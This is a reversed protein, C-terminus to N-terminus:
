AANRVLDHAPAEEGENPVAEGRHGVADRLLAPPPRRRREGHVGPRRSGGGGRPAAGAAARRCPAGARPGPGWRQAGWAERRPRAVCEGDEGWPQRLTFRENMGIMEELNRASKPDLSYRAILEQIRPCGDKMPSLNVHEMAEHFAIGLRVARSGLIERGRDEPARDAHEDAEATQGAAQLKRSTPTCRLM